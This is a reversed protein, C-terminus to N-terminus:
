RKITMDKVGGYFIEALAEQGKLNPHLGDLYGVEDPNEKICRAFEQEFDVKPIRFTRCFRRLWQCYDKGVESAKSFDFLEAWEPKAGEPMIRTPIGLVPIIGKALAQHVMAMVNSRAALDSGSSFIDNYGGMIFVMQPKLPLVETQFRALFGGTTDGIIGLNVAEVQLKDATKSVWNDKRKMGFGFIFSDGLFAIKM